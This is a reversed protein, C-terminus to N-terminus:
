PVSINTLIKGSQREVQIKRIEGTLGKITIEYLQKRDFNVVQADILSGPFEATSIKIAQVMSIPNLNVTGSPSTEQSVGGGIGIRPCPPGEPCGGGVVGWSANPGWFLSTFVIFVLVRNM